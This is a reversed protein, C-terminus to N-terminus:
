RRRPRPRRLGAIAFSVTMVIAAWQSLMPAAVPGTSAAAAREFAGIDPAVGAVRPQGRQDTALVFANNGHDLAVSDAALAHTQTPGGNSALPSLHPDTHLTDAPLTVDSAAVVLNNAGNITMSYQSSIDAGTKTARNGAVITSELEPNGAVPGAVYMGGGNASTNNAITSSVITLFGGLQTFIGGGSKSKATNGSITSDAIVFSGHTSLGGGTGDTYNGSITTRGLYGGTDTFLGAGTDYTGFSNAPDGVARNGSVTSDYLAATGRYAFAGGGYSATLTNLLSGRAVNGSLTSTYMTLGPSLIGGGYAGEGIATCDKVTAHDLTVYANSLICAGGAVNYGALENRGNRM